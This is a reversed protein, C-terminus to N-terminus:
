SSLEQLLRQAAVMAETSGAAVVRGKKLTLASWGGLGVVKGQPAHVVTTDSSRFCWDDDARSM